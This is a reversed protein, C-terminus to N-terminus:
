HSDNTVDEGVRGLLHGLEVRDGYRAVVHLLNERRMGGNEEPLAQGVKCAPASITVSNAKVIASPSSYTRVPMAAPM